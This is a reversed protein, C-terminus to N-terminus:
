PLGNEPTPEPTTTPKAPLDAFYLVYGRRDPILDSDMQFEQPQAAYVFVRVIEDDGVLHTVDITDGLGFSNGILTRLMEKYLQTENAVAEADPPAIGVRFTLPSGLQSYDSLFAAIPRRTSPVLDLQDHFQRLEYIRGRHAALVAMPQEPFSPGVRLRLASLGREEFAIQEIRLQLSPGQTRARHLATRTSAPPIQLDMKASPGSVIRGDIREMDQSTTYLRGTGPHTITYNGGARVGICTWQTVDFLGEGIQQAMAVSRARSVESAGLRSLSAFVWSFLSVSALFVVYMWRYDAAERGVRFCVPFLCILYLLSLLYIVWWRRAFRTVSQLDLFMQTDRDWGRRNLLPATANFQPSRRYRDYRNADAAAEPLSPPTLIRKNVFDLTLDRVPLDIRQVLGAGVRFEQRPNNLVNLSEAFRPFDGHADPLLYVQGGRRLWDLFAQRRAGQWRPVRDIAVGRLGDTATVSVPFLHFPFRRLVGGAVQLDDPDYLLVTARDGQPPSPVDYQEEKAHGWKLRWQEWDSIVYPVFQVWRSALPGIYVDRVISADIPKTAQVLKTLSLTGEFPIASDNRVLVSLPVFTREQARGDFGWQVREISVAPRDPQAFSATAGAIIMAALLLTRSM